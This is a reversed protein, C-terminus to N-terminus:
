KVREPREAVVGAPKLVVLIKGIEEGISTRLANGAEQIKPRFEQRINMLRDRQESTLDLDRLSAIQHALRDRVLEKRESRLDQLTEKQEATLVDRIKALENGVLDKLEKANTQLETRQESSLDLAQLAERRTKGAKIAEERAQKQAVTLVGELQKIAEEMRPRYEKRIEAIKELEGDTLDLEKLAAIKHALGEEKFERREEMIERIKPRQEPTLVNRIQEVEETVLNKLEKASEENKPRYEKRIAEIKAEQDDTLEMDQIAVVLVKAKGTGVAPRERVTQAVGIAAGVSTALALAIVAQTTRM